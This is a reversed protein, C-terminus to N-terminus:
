ENLETGTQNIHNLYMPQTRYVFSSRVILWHSPNSMLVHSFTLTVVGEVNVVSDVDKGKVEIRFPFLNQKVEPSSTM